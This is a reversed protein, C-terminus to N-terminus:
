PRRGRAHGGWATFERYCPGSCGKLFLLRLWKSSHVVAEPTISMNTVIFDARPFLEGAHWEVKAIVRREKKWSAARYSFSHFFVKPKKSPRGVPRTMLHDIECSLVQNAPLRIAFLIGKNELYECIDPPAFATVGRLYLKRNTAKYKDVIPSLFERWGDASHVNGPRLM